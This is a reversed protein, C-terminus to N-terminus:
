EEGGGGMIEINMFSLEKLNVWYCFNSLEDSIYYYDKNDLEDKKINIEGNVIIELEEGNNKKIILKTKM